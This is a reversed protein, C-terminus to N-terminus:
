SNLFEITNRCNRNCYFKNFGIFELMVHLIFGTIFFAFNIGSPKIRSDRNKRNSTLNFGMHGIIFTILGVITSELYLIM